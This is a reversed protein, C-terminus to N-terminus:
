LSIRFMMQPFIGVYDCETVHDKDAISITFAKKKLINKVTKHGESLCVSIEADGSIGGWAANMIDPNGDEDYSAIMFVPQPYCWPKAGFNKRM